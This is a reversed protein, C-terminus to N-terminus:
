NLYEELWEMLELNERYHMRKPGFFSVWVTSGNTLAFSSIISSYDGHPLVDIEEGIFVNQNMRLAYTVIDGVKARMTDFTEFFQEAADVDRFEPHQFINLFGDFAVDESGEEVSWILNDSFKHLAKIVLSDFAEGDISELYNLFNYKRKADKEKKKSNPLVTDVYFRYGQDTPIRGASTYPQELYGKDTLEVLENRITAPKIGLGYHAALFESGIPIARDIYEPVLVSLILQQRETLDEM